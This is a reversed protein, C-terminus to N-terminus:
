HDKDGLSSQRVSLSRGQRDKDGSQVPCAGTERQGVGGGLLECPVPWHERPSPLQGSSMSMSDPRGKARKKNNINM